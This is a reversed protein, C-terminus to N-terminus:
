KIMGKVWLKSMWKVGKSAVEEIASEVPSEGEPLQLEVTAIERGFVKLSLKM